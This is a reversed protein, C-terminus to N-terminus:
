GQILPLNLHVTTGEGPLSMVVLSGGVNEARERMTQLGFHGHKIANESMGVGNDAIDINLYGDTTEIEVSVHSAHAHKRVNTLAEQIIRVAQTEAFQSLSWEGLTNNQVCAKIGSQLGFEDVYESLAALFGTDGSLTTRLSLINERVDAQASKILARADQLEKLLTAQNGQQVLAELTQTELSLYGLIQALSDHMERAIRSREQLVALSQLRAAMSAHELVIVAQNALHSLGILDTSGFPEAALRGLWLVGLPTQNLQLPVIAAAAAHFARQDLHWVLEPRSEARAFCQAEGLMAVNLIIPNDVATAESTLLEGNTVQYKFNLQHNPEYLALTASDACMLERALSIINILVSDADEMSAIRRSINVLADLLTETGQQGDLNIAASKCPAAQDINAQQQDLNSLEM